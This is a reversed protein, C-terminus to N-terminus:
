LTRSVAHLNPELTDLRRRLLENERKLRALKQLGQPIMRGTEQPAPSGLTRYSMINQILDTAKRIKILDKEDLKIGLAKSWDEVELQSLTRKKEVATRAAKGVARHADRFSFGFDRVLTNAVETASTLLFSTKEIYTGTLRLRPILESLIKLSPILMDASSWVLPTLEQFDLNYGTPLAHILTEAVAVNGAIKAMRARLIELLDPNKKQPMISSTSTFDDPLEILGIDGSSYFILDQAFRSLDLALISVLGLFELVFDRGAVADLSNEILGDFGLLKAVSRRDINYSSGALAGSGMPSKNLRAYFQTLRENNRLFSNTISILYHAFTIPQAPQLHSYGPFVSRVHKQALLLLRTEVLLVSGLLESVVKRMTMRVATVVQDNRSKGTHLKGGLRDGVIRSVSEEILVHIDEVNKGTKIGRELSQLARLLKKADNKDIVKGRALAIVHAENVLLTSQAIRADAELSSTFSVVEARSTSLRGGKLISSM